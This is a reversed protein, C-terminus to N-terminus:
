KSESTFFSKIDKSNMIEMIVDKIELINMKKVDEVSKEMMNAILQNVEKRAKYLKKFFTLVIKTGYKQQISDLENKSVIKRDQKFDPLEFDMKDMIESILYMDDVILSRM